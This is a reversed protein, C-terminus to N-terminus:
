EICFIGEAFFFRVSLISEKFGATRKQFRATVECSGVVVQAFGGSLNAGKLAGQGFHALYLSVMGCHVISQPLIDGSQFRLNLPKAPFGIILM